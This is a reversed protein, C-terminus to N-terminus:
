PTNVPVTAILTFGGGSAPQHYIQLDWSGSSGTGGFACAIHTLNVDVDPVPFPLGVALSTASGTDQGDLVVLSQTLTEISKLIRAYTVSAAPTAM